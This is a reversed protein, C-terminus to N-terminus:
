PTSFEKEVELTIHGSFDKIPPSKKHLLLKIALIQPFNKKLDLILREALYELLKVGHYNKILKSLTIFVEEYNLVKELRDETERFYTKLSLTVGLMQGLTNEETKAGIHMFFEMNGMHIWVTDQAM